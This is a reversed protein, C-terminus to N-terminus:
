LKKKIGRFFRPKPGAGNETSVHGNSSPQPNTADGEETYLELDDIDSLGELSKIGNESLEKLIRRGSKTALLFVLLAGVLVGLLFGNSSNHSHHKEEM